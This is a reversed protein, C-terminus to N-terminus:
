WQLRADITAWCPCAPNIWQLATVGGQAGDVIALRPDKSADADAMPKFQSFEQTTNSMGISILVYRGAASARGDSDLPGIARAIALGASQHFGPMVRSGGPYLGGQLGKYTGGALDDLPTLGVSTRACGTAGPQPTTTVPTTQAPTPSAPTGGCALEAASFALVCVTARMM